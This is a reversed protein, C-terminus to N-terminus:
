DAPPFASAAAAAAAAAAVGVGVVVVVVVAVAVAVVVVVVVVVVAVVVGVVVVVVVGAATGNNGQRPGQAPVEWTRSNLLSRDSLRGCEFRNVNGHPKPDLIESRINLTALRRTITMTRQLM